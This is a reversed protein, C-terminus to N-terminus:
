GAGLLQQAVAGDTLLDIILARLGIAIRLGGHVGVLGHHFLRLEIEFEGLQARRDGATDTVAADGVAVQDSAASTAIGRQEGGDYREISNAALEGEVLRGIQTVLAEGAVALVHGTAFRADDNRELEDVLPVEGVAAVHVEHVVHDVAAGAGNPRARLEGIRVA